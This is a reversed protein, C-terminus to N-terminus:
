EGMDCFIGKVDSSDPIDLTFEMGEKAFSLGQSRMKRARDALKGGDVAGTSSGRLQQVQMPAVSPMADTSSGGASM